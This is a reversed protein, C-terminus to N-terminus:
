IKRLYRIDQGCMTISPGVFHPVTRFSPPSTTKISNAVVGGDAVGGGGRELPPLHNPTRGQVLYLKGRTRIEPPALVEGVLM